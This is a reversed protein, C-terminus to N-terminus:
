VEELPGMINKICLKAAEKAAAPVFESALRLQNYESGFCLTAAAEKGDQKISVVIFVAKIEEADKLAEQVKKNIFDITLEKSKTEKLDEIKM